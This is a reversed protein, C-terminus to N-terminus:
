YLLVQSLMPATGTDLPFLRLTVSLARAAWRPREGEVTDSTRFAEGTASAIGGEVL